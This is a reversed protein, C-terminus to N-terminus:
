GPAQDTTPFCDALLRRARPKLDEGPYYGAFIEEAKQASSVACATLLTRIDGSDRAGRAAYLKMALLLDAPALSIEVQGHRKLRGWRPDGAFPLYARAADNLWDGPWGAADAIERVVALVPAAASQPTIVVDIDRTATRESDVTLAIAAGGVVHISAGIEGDALRQALEELAALLATQDFTRVPAPREPV